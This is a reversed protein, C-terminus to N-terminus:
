VPESYTIVNNSMDYGIAGVSNNVGQTSYQFLLNVLRTLEAVQTVLNGSVDSVIGALASVANNRAGVEAALNGSVDAVVGALASDDYPILAAVVGALTQRAGVEAAL